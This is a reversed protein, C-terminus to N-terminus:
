KKLLYQELHADSQNAKVRHLLCRLYFARCLSRALFLFAASGSFINEM